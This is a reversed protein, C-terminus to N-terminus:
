PNKWSDDARLKRYRAEEEAAERIPREHAEKAADGMSQRGGLFPVGLFHLIWLFTGWFIM